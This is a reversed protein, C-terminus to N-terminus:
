ESRWHLYSGLDADIRASTRAYHAGLAFGAAFILLLAILTM